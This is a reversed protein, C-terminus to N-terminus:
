RSRSAGPSACAVVVATSAIRIWRHAKADQGALRYPAGYHRRVLASVPWALSTLLLAFLGAILAPLLWSPSVSAPTPEFVMFPSLGDFSFRVVRGDKVQAALLNKGDVDRWVFPEVERWKIPVGALNTALPM